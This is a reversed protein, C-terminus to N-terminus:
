LTVDTDATEPALASLKGTGSYASFWEDRVQPWTYKEVEQLAGRALRAADDHHKLLHAVAEAMARPNEPPVVLGTKGHRVMNAIEGTPTSVVPLGAAFAELVSLPQNDVVSSNVFIDATEYLRPMRAPEVRGVFRVASGCRSAALRELREREGGYGAVTLSAEPYRSKLLAFAEITVDVRYYPDLNRTSLLHPRLPMRERYRYRSTDVVNPIVRANYGHRAFVTKLYESPVIIEDVRRLWPHVLPGWHALHDEAEGSHYNLIVPKSFSRAAILAPVPALLFSWYSASFVHVVDAKRLRLLSPLYLAQNFLTRLVRHDRLRQLRGPFRPNVPVFLVEYGESRLREALINAQVGQGGIIELSPAVIAITRRRPPAALQFGNEIRQALSEM